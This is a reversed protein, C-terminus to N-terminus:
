RQYFQLGNMEMGDRRVAAYKPEVPSDQFAPEFGLRRFFEISTAVDRAALVPYVAQLLPM